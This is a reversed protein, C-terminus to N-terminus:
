NRSQLRPWNWAAAQGDSTGGVSESEVGGGGEGEGERGRWGGGEGERERGGGLEEIPSFISASM